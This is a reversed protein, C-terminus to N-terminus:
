AKTPESIPQYTKTDVQPTVLLRRPWPSLMGSDLKWRQRYRPSWPGFEVWVDGDRANALVEVFEATDTTYAYTGPVLKGIVIGRRALWETVVPHSALPPLPAYDQWCPDRIWRNQNLPWPPTFFKWAHGYCEGAEWRFGPRCITMGCYMTRRRYPSTLAEETRECFACKELRGLHLGYNYHHWVGYRILRDGCIISEVQNLLEFLQLRELVADGPEGPKWDGADIPEPTVLGFSCIERDWSKLPTHWRVSGIRTEVFILRVRGSASCRRCEEAWYEDGDYRARRFEGTGKCTLCGMEISVLRLAAMGHRVAHRITRLKYRYIHPVVDYMGLQQEFPVRCWANLRSLPTLIAQVEAATM